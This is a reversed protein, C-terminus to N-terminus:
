VLTPDSGQGCRGAARSVQRHDDGHPKILLALGCLQMWGIPRTAPFLFSTLVSSVVHAIAMAAAAGTAGYRPILLLGAVLLVAIGLMANVVHLSQRGIINIFHARVMGSWNSPTSCALAVLVPQIEAFKHGFVLVALPAVIVALGLGCLYSGAAALRFIQALGQLFRARSADHFAVLKPYFATGAVAPLIDVVSAVQIGLSLRGVEAFGDFHEVLLVGIRFFVVVMVMSVSAMLAQRLVHAFRRGDIRWRGFRGGGQLYVLTVALASLPGELASAAAVWVLPLHHLIVYARGAFLLTTVAVHAGASRRADTRAKFLYDLSGFGLFIYQSMLIIAMTVITREGAHALIIIAAIVATWAVSLVSLVCFYTGLLPEQAQDHRVLDRVIIPECAGQLTASAIQVTTLVYLYQGVDQLGYIRAFLVNSVFGLGLAFMRDGLYLGSASFGGRLGGLFERLRRVPELSRLRTM